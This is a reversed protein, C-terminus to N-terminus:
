RTMLNFVAKLVVRIMFIFVTSVNIEGFSFLSCSTYFHICKAMMRKFIKGQMYITISIKLWLSREIFYRQRVHLAIAIFEIRGISCDLHDLYICVSSKDNCDTRTAHEVLIQFTNFM